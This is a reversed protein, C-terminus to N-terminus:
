SALVAALQYATVAQQSANPLASALGLTDLNPYSAAATAVAGVMANFTAITTYPDASYAAAFQSADFSVTGIGASFGIDSPTVVHVGISNPDFGPQGVTSPDLLGTNVVYTASMASTIGVQLDAAIGGAANGPTAASGGLAAALQALSDAFDSVTTSVSSSPTPTGGNLAIWGDTYPVQLPDTLLPSLTSQLSGVLQDVGAVDFPQFLSALLAASGSSLSQFGSLVASAAGTEASATQRTTITVPDLNSYVSVASITMGISGPQM